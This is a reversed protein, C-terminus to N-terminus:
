EAIGYRELLKVWCRRCIHCRTKPNAQGIKTLATVMKYKPKEDGCIPCETWYRDEDPSRM